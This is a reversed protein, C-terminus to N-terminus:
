CFIKKMKKATNDISFLSGTKRCAQTYQDLNLTNNLYKNYITSISKFIDKVTTNEIFWGNIGPKLMDKPGETKTALVPIGCSWAEVLVLGFTEERSPLLYIDSKSYLTPLSEYDAYGLDTINKHIKAYKEIIPKLSGNGVFTFLAKNKKFKQNFKEIAKLLLDYGKQLEYRAISIFVLKDHRKKKVKLFKEIRVGGPIFYVNKIGWKNEFFLKDQMNLTQHFDFFNLIYRSIYKMYFNHLKNYYFIPAYHIVIVKKKTIFKLLAMLIDQGLFGHVFFVVDTQKFKKYLYILISPTPILVGFFIFYNLKVYPIGFLQKRLYEETWRKEGLNGSVIEVNMQFQKKLSQTIDCHFREGGGAAFLSM